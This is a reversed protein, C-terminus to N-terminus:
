VFARGLRALQIVGAKANPINCLFLLIGRAAMAVMAKTYGVKWGEREELGKEMEWRIYLLVDGLVDKLM